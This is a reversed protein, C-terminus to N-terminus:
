LVKPKDVQSTGLYLRLPMHTLCRHSMSTGNVATPPLVRVRTAHGSKLWATQTAALAACPSTRLHGACTMSGLQARRHRQWHSPLACPVRAAKALSRWTFAPCACRWTPQLYQAAESQPVRRGGWSFTELSLRSAGLGRRSGRVSSDADKILKPLTGARRIAVREHCHCLRQASSLM